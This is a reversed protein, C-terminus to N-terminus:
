VEVALEDGSGAYSLEIECRAPVHERALLQAAAADQEGPAPFPGFSVAGPLSGGLSTRPFNQHRMVFPVLPNASGRHVGGTTQLILECPSAQHEFAALVHGRVAELLEAVSSQEDIRLRLPLINIFFGILPELEVDTRNSTTTGICLDDKNTYRYLTVGLAALLSMFITCGHRRSLQDLNRAFESPYQYVFTKSTTCAKAQRTHETPLELSDEYGKL